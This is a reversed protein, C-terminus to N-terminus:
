LFASTTDISTALPNILIPQASTADPVELEMWSIRMEEGSAVSTTSAEYRLNSYDTINVVDAEDLAYTFTTYADRSTLNSYAVIETTGQLLRFDLKEGSQSGSSMMRFRIVHGTDVGPDAVTSLTLEGSAAGGTTMYDSDSATVEDTAEHLTAAGSATWGSPTPVVGDPRAYQVAISDVAATLLVIFGLFIYNTRKFM